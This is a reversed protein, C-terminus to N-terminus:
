HATRWSFQLCSGGHRGGFSKRFCEIGELFCSSSCKLRITMQLPVRIEDSKQM